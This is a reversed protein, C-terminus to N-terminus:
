DARQDPDLVLRLVQIPAEPHTPGLHVRPAKFIEITANENRRAVLFPTLKQSRSLASRPKHTMATIIQTIPRPSYTSSGLHHSCVIFAMYIIACKKIDGASANSDVGLTEYYSASQSRWASATHFLATHHLVSRPLLFATPLLSRSLSM